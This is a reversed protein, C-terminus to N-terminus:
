IEKQSQINLRMRQKRNTLNGCVPLDVLSPPLCQLLSPLQEESGDADDTM